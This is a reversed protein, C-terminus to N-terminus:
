YGCIHLLWAVVMFAFLPCCCCCVVFLLVCYCRVVVVLLSSACNLWVCQWSVGVDLFGRPIMPPGRPGDDDNEDERDGHERVVMKM